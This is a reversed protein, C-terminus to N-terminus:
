CEGGTFRSGTSGPLGWVLDTSAAREFETRPINREEDLAAERAKHFEPHLKRLLTDNFEQGTDTDALSVALRSAEWPDVDGDPLGVGPRDFELWLPGEYEEWTAANPDALEDLIDFLHEEDEAHVLAATGDGWKVLYLTMRIGGKDRAHTGHRSCREVLRYGM